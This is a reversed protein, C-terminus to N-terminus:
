LVDMRRLTARLIKIGSPMVCYRKALYILTVSARMEAIQEPLRAIM